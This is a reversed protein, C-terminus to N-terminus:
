CSASPMRMWMRWAWRPACGKAQRTALACPLEPELSAPVKLQKRLREMQEEWYDADCFDCVVNARLHLPRECPALLLPIIQREADVAIHTAWQECRQAWPDALFAPTVVALMVRSRQLDQELQAVAEPGPSRQAVFRVKDPPLGLEPLLFGEVFARDAAAHAIFLELVPPASDLPSM